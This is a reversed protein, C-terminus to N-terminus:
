CQSIQTIQPPYCHFLLIGRQIIQPPSAPVGQWRTPIMDVLQSAINRWCTPFSRTGNGPCVMGVRISVIASGRQFPAAGVGSGRRRASSPGFGPGSEKPDHVVQCRTKVPLPAVRGATRGGARSGDAGSARTGPRNRSSRGSRRSAPVCTSSWFARTQSQKHCAAGLGSRRAAARDARTCSVNRRTPHATWSRTTQIFQKGWTPVYCPTVYETSLSLM